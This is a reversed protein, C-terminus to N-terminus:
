LTNISRRLDGESIEILADLVKPSEIAIDETKCIMQLAEVVESVGIAVLVVVALCDLEVEVCNSEVREVVWSEVVQTVGVVPSSLQLLGNMRVFQGDLQVWGARLAVKVKGAGVAVM